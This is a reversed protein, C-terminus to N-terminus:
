QTGGVQPDEARHALIGDVFTMDVHVRERLETAPVQFPDESLVALDARKGTELSGTERELFAARAGNLTQARLATELGLSELPNWPENWRGERPNWTRRTLAAELAGIPDIPTVTWDSGFALEAGAEHLSAWPFALRERDPGVAEGAWRGDDVLQLPQVSCITGAKGAAQIGWPTMHQAHELRPRIDRAPWEAGLREYVSLLWDTAQDGIAHVVPQLGLEAAERIERALEEPDCVPAGRHESSGQYPANLWATRSGLTGDVFGKATGWRLRADGAGEERVFRALELRDEIPVAASVRLPLRGEQALARLTLLSRWSEHSSQMAGMDHVQTVGRALAHRLAARIAARREEGTPPPVVRSVFDMAGERLVGTPEGTDPDRDITGDPPDPTDGTVGALRLAESSAVGMHMDVRHLFVPRGPAAKDLWERRPLTGDWLRHDWDAGLIWGAGPSIRARDTVQRVFAEPSDVGRLDVRSLQLGGSQLHVHADVFGPLVFRGELNLVATEAGRLGDLDGATGVALVRGDRIALTDPLRPAQGTAHTQATAHGASPAGTWIRADTLIWDAPRGGASEGGRGAPSAEAKQRGM